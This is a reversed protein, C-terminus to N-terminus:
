KTGEKRINVLYNAVADNMEQDNIKREKSQKEYIKEYATREIIFVKSNVLSDKTSFEKDFRIIFNGKTDYILFTSDELLVFKVYVNDVKKLIYDKKYSNNRECYLNINSKQPKDYLYLIMKREVIKGDRDKKVLYYDYFPDPCHASTAISIQGLISGDSLVIQNEGVRKDHNKCWFENYYNITFDIRKGSFFLVSTYKNIKENWNKVYNVMYDGDHLKAVDIAAYRNEKGPWPFEYGWVDPYPPYKKEEQAFSWPPLSLLFLILIIYNIFPVAKIKKKM